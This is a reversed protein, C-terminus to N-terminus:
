AHILTTIAEVLIVHLMTVGLIEGLIKIDILWTKLKEAENKELLLLIRRSLGRNTATSTQSLERQLDEIRSEKLNSFLKHFFLHPSLVTSVLVIAVGTYPIFIWWHPTGTPMATSGWISPPFVAYVAAGLMTLTILTRFGKFPKMWESILDRGKFFTKLCLGRYALTLGIPIMYMFIGGLICCPSTEILAYVTVLGPENYSWWWPMSRPADWINFALWFLVVLWYAKHTLYGLLRNKVRQLGGSNILHGVRHLANSFGRFVFIILIGNLAGFIAALLWRPESLFYRLNGTVHMLPIGLLYLFVAM